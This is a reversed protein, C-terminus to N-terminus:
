FQFYIFARNEGSGLVFGLLLLGATIAGRLPWSWRVAWLQSASRVIMVDLLLVLGLLAVAFPPPSWPDGVLAGIGALYGLAVSLPGADGIGRARFVVFTLAVVHFTLIVALAYRLRESPGPAPGPAPPRRRRAFEAHSALYTGHAVGWAAFNWAAGHWLGSLFMTTFLNRARRLPGGRGGGLPVYLYDLLWTSLSIHWRRWFDQVNRAFFPANFNVRLEFGFARAVGRAMDTYGSFDLYIQFAFVYAGWLLEWGSHAAPAGFIPDAIAGMVDGLSKRFWGSAFLFAGQELLGLSIRRENQIQPLLSGAREIPGAVLQPFFAVYLAFDLLSRCARQQGRYVDITYSM